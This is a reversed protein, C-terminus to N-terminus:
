QGFEKSLLEVCESCHDEAGVDWGLKILKEDLEQCFRSPASVDMAHGCFDCEVKVFMGKRM